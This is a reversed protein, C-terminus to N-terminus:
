VIGNYPRDDGLTLGQQMRHRRDDLWTRWIAYKEQREAIREPSEGWYDVHQVKYLEDVDYRKFEEGNILVTVSRVINEYVIMGANISSFDLNTILDLLSSIFDALRREPAASLDGFLMASYLESDEHIAKDDVMISLHSAGDTPAAVDIIIDKVIYTLGESRPSDTEQIRRPGFKFVFALLQWFAWVGTPSSSTGPRVVLSNNFRPDLDETPEFLRFTAHVQDIYRTRPPCPLTWTPWLGCEKVYMVDVHYVSPMHGLLYQTEDRIQKNVLLLEKAPNNEPAQWIGPVGPVCKRSEQGVAPSAPPESSSFVVFEFINLRIERPLATLAM